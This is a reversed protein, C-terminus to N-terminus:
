PTSPIGQQSTMAQGQGQAHDQVMAQLQGIMKGFLAQDAENGKVLIQFVTNLAEPFGPTPQGQNPVGGPPQQMAGQGPPPPGGSSPLGGQPMGGSPDGMAQPGMRQNLIARERDLATQM